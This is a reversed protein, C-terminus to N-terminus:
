PHLGWESGNGCGDFQELVVSYEIQNPQILIGDQFRCTGIDYRTIGSIPNFTISFNGNSPITSSAVKTSEDGTYVNIKGDTTTTSDTRINKFTGTVTVETPYDIKKTLPSWGTFHSVTGVYTSYHGISTAEGEQVWYGQIKDYYWLPITEQSSIITDLTNDRPFTLIAISSGDLNLANGQPDTLEVNMFGYSQIPFTTNGEIGEFTGPFTAKGSQTTIPYYSMKVLVQGVYISNNADIYGGAPLEVKAGDNQTVITGEISDFTLTAKPKDLTINQTVHATQVVVIRSNKLYEPHTVDVHVREEAMINSLLYSGNNDTSVTTGAVTVQAGSIATGNIDTVRGSLTHIGTDNDTITISVNVEASEALYGDMVSFTFYDTGIYGDNPLYTINPLEGSLTGHDPMIHLSYMLTDGDADYANLNIEIATNKSTGTELDEATPAHNQPTNVIITRILAIAENGAIDKATYHITYTDAISTNVTGNISISINEDRDDTATAGLETYSDGVTLTIEEAGNLTIVPPTADDPLKVIVTRTVEKAHNGAKDDVNYTITYNGEISSDISGKTVVFSTIDGDKNDSATAGLETYTDESTLTIEKAGNLTIVPVITDEESTSPKVIVKVYDRSKLMFSQRVYEHTVLKFVLTTKKSVTPATFTVQPSKKNSLIVDVGKVQKWYYRKIEGGKEATSASADLTVLDGSNVTQDKGADACGTLFLAFILTFCYFIKKM